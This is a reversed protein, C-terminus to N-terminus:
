NGFDRFNGFTNIDSIALKRSKQIEVFPEGLAAPEAQVTGASAPRTAVGEACRSPRRGKSQPGLVAWIMMETGDGLACVCSSYVPIVRSPGPPRGRIQAHSPKQLLSSPM